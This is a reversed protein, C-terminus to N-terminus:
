LTREEQISRRPPGSSIISPRRVSTRTISCNRRTVRSQQELLRYFSVDICKMVSSWLCSHIILRGSRSNLEAAVPFFLPVRHMTVLEGNPRERISPTYDGDREFPRRIAQGQSEM